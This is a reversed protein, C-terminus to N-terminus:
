TNRGAHLIAGPALGNRSLPKPGPTWSNVRHCQECRFNEVLTVSPRPDQRRQRESLNWPSCTAQPFLHMGNCAPIRATAPRSDRM